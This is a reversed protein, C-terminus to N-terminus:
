AIELDDSVLFKKMGWPYFVLPLIGMLGIPIVDLIVQWMSQATFLMVLAHLVNALILFDVFAKHKVPSRAAFVMVVGMALYLSSMM